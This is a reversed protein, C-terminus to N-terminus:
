LLRSLDGIAFGMLPAAVGRGLAIVKFLEGMEAPSLLKQVGAVRALHNAADQVPLAHVLDTIGCNVLFRAQNTYGELALGHEVGAEAIATFDVHATIDQLGPLFFPDDHAHHRYHCMLTGDSRQPHYYERRGFGYDVFLLVGAELAGALTAVLKPGALNIETVYGPQDPLLAVAAALTSSAIPRDQWNLGDRWIVGREQWAGDDNAVLHVPLADLLENGLVLGRWRSPLASLWSVRPLLHPAAAGIRERQRAQLDASVELMAYQQPLADLSELALLLDAALRGSGGGLELLSGDTAAIVEAAQRALTQAFLPSLEPATVFDGPAGLKEPGASYYGLGPAYLAREMYRAFSIWGGAAEIEARIAAVLRASHDRAFASPAPLTALESGV